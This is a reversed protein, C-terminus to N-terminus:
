LVNGHERYAKWVTEFFDHEEPIPHPERWRVSVEGDEFSVEQILSHTDATSLQSCFHPPLLPHLPLGEKNLYLSSGRSIGGVKLYEGMANLYVLQAILCDRLRFLFPLGSLTKVQLSSFDQLYGLVEDQLAQIAAQERILSAHLSMLKRVRRYVPSATDKSGIAGEALKLIDNVLEPPCLIPKWLPDHRKSQIYSAARASGVQGANLASGGPRYVGHTGAVEGVAFMGEVTTQWWLDVALGGNNHQACLSIELPEQALDIGHDLYFEYAPINMLKLRDLPLGFTADSQKLYAYAEPQLSEFALGEEIPNRTFDLYVRRGQELERYVLLDIISSGEAIKRVDFPWQYGKLFVLSLMLYPDEFQEILFDHTLGEEDISFFRPLVQMYTGSVNWRPNLSALGYQWETLNRGSCGAEFALGSAGFQTMPYVSDAYMVAPGGTAWVLNRCWFICFQKTRIELCLVGRVENDEKLVRVALYGGLLTAGQNLLSAELAETMFRSTYPGASTARRKPDHDTKYGVYEGYRNVPFPVGLFALKIFSQVSLSAEVLAIDGDVAGGSFFDTAMARVSDPDSGCLSLKYYTQKDSGTNRSTGFSLDESLVVVDSNGMRYLSDATNYGAAGSGVVVTESIYTTLGCFSDGNKM